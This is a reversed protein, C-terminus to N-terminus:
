SYDGKMIFLTDVCIRVYSPTLSVINNYCRIDMNELSYGFLGRITINKKIEEINIQLYQGNETVM